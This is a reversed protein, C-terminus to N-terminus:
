TSCPSRPSRPPSSRPLLAPTRRRSRTASGRHPQGDLPDTTTAVAPRSAPPSVVGGPRPSTACRKPFLPMVQRYEFVATVWGLHYTPKVGAQERSKRLSRTAARGSFIRVGAGGVICATGSAGASDVDRRHFAFALFPRGVGGAAAADDRGVGGLRAASRSSRA